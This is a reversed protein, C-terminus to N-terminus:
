PLPEPRGFFYGQLYACGAKTLLVAQRSTEIGEAITPLGYANAVTVIGRVVELAREAELTDQGVDKTFSRDIKVAQVPLSTMATLSSYGNGFDDLATRVGLARIELLVPAFRPELMSSETLELWLRRPEIGSEGFVRRLHEVFDPQRIELASVNVSVRELRRAGVADVAQRLVWRGIPVILGSTEALPIFDLPSVMGSPRRWRLLAEHAIVAHSKAHVVPQFYVQLEERDLARHLATLREVQVSSWEDEQRQFAALGGGSRKVRYMAADASSLLADLETTDDPYVSLGLSWHVFVEQGGVMFSVNFSDQLRRTVLVVDAMSRVDTFLLVFEDGNVRAVVDSTATAEKLRRAVAKLLADGAAHGFTDNILKFRDLDLLGVVVKEGNEDARRCAETLQQRFQARNPLGTLTDNMAMENLDQLAQRVRLEAMAMDAFSALLDQEKQTFERPETGLVCFTGLKQGDPTILPAGAYSRIHPEGTVASYTRFREHQAMDPISMVGDQTIAVACFSESRPIESMPIGLSAKFWQREEGVFSVMAMPLDFFRAALEVLRDFQPEPPTDLIGYRHLAALRRQEDTSADVELSDATPEDKMFMMKILKFTLFLIARMPGPQHPELRQDHLKTTLEVSSPFPQVTGVDILVGSDRQSQRM